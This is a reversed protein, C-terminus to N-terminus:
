TRRTELLSSVILQDLKKEAESDEERRETNKKLPSTTSVETDVDEEYTLEGHQKGSKALRSKDSWERICTRAREQGTKTGLEGGNGRWTGSDDVTRSEKTTGNGVRVM